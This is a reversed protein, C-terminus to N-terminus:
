ETTTVIKNHIIFLQEYHKFFIEFLSPDIKLVKIDYVKTNLKNYWFELM